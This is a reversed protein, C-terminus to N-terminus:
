EVREFKIIIDQVIKESEFEIKEENVYIEAAASNGVRIKAESEDSLDYTESEGNELEIGAQFVKEQNNTVVLWTNASVAKVKVEFQEANKLVYTTIGGSVSEVTIEQQPKAVEPLPEEDINEGGENDESNQQDPPSIDEAEQINVAKHTDTEPESAGFNGYKVVLFWILVVLAIVFVTILIKPFVEILKSSRRSITNRTQVRSLQEPLDDEYALPIESKYEEFLQEHELDVAEAYQKIFARTYFKGPLIDYNGEEIASLYRKQIRTINQLEELTLSKEERAM